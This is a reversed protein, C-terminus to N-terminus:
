DFWNENKDMIEQRYEYIDWSEEKSSILTLNDKKIFMIRKVDVDSEYVVNVYEDTEKGGIVGRVNSDALLTFGDMFVVEQIVTYRKITVTKHGDLCEELLVAETNRQQEQM